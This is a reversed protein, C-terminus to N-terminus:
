QLYGLSRLRKKIKNSMPPIVHNEGKKMWKSLRQAMKQTLEPEKKALNQTESPDAALNYLELVPESKTPSLILKWNAERLAWIHGRLGQIYRRTNYGPYLCCEGSETYVPLTGITEKGLIAPALDKGERRDFPDEIGLLSFVTPLIDITRVNQSIRQGSYIKGPWHFILPVKVTPEYVFDGHEFYYQHEGLSEGHDATIVLLANDMIGIEKMEALLKGIAMDTFAIGGDYLDRIRKLVKPSFRTHNFVVKPKYLEPDIKKAKDPYLLYKFGDKFRGQYNPDFRDRFKQPPIYPMHPEM